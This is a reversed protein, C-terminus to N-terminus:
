DDAADSTYLLCPNYYVMVTEGVKYRAPYSSTRSEFQYSEGVNNKFEILPQYSAGKHSSRSIMEVVKGEVIQATTIFDYTSKHASLCYTLITVGFIIFLYLIIKVSQM